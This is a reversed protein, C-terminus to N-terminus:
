RLYPASVDPTQSRPRKSKRSVKSPIKYRLKLKKVAWQFLLSERGIYGCTMAEIRYPILLPLNVTIGVIEKLVYSLASNFWKNKNCVGRISRLLLSKAALRLNWNEQCFFAFDVFSEKTM